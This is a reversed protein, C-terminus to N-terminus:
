EGHAKRGLYEEAYTPRCELGLETRYAKWFELLFIKVMKRRADMDRHADSKGWPANKGTGGCNWCEVTKSPKKDPVPIVVKLHETKPDPKRSLKGNLSSDAEGKGKCMMCVPLLQNKRRNKQGAYVKYWESAERSNRHVGTKTVKAELPSGAKILGDALVKLCKTKLFPNYSLKQGKTPRDARGEFTALGAYKWLKSINTAIHPNVESILVAAIVHGVGRQSMLWKGMVHRKVHVKLDKEIHKELGLLQKGILGLFNQDDESLDAEAHEAGKERLVSQDRNDAAMRQKQMDYFYRVRLRLARRPIDEYRDETTTTM